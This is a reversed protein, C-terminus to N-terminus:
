NSLDLQLSAKKGEELSVTKKDLKVIRNNEIRVAAADYTGASLSNMHFAGNKFVSSSRIFGETTFPAQFTKGEKWPCTGSKFLYVWAGSTMAGAPLTVTGKLTATGTDYLFDVRTEADNAVEVVKRIQVERTYSVVYRGPPVKDVRFAGDEVQAYAQTNAEGDAQEREVTIHGSKVPEGNELVQGLLVGTGTTFFLDQQLSDGAALDLTVSNHFPSRSERGGLGCSLHIEGAPLHSIRYLGNMDTEMSRSMGSGSVFVRVDPAPVGNEYVYGYVEGSNAGGVELNVTTVGEGVEVERNINFNEDNNFFFVYASLRYKGPHLGTMRYSGDEKSETTCSKTSSGSAEASGYSRSKISIYVGGKPEGHVIVKGELTCGEEFSLNKFAKEGEKVEVKAEVEAREFGDGEQRAKITHRGPALNKLEYFGEKGSVTRSRNYEEDTSEVTVGAAGKGTVYVYGAVSGGRDLFIELGGAIGGPPVAIEKKRAVCYEPHTVTVDYSGPELNTVSFSGDESTRAKPPAFSLFFSSSRRDKSVRIESGAVPQLTAGDRVVGSLSGRGAGSLTIVVGEVTRGPEVLIPDSKVELDNEGKVTVVVEGPDVKKLDFVGDRFRTVDPSFFGTFFTDQRGARDARATFKQVPKGSPDKVRGKIRGFREIIIENNRTDVEYLQSAGKRRGVSSFADLRVKGEMLGDVSFTGDEKSTLTKSLRNEQDGQSIRIEVHALPKGQDDKIRGALFHSGARKLTFELPEDTTELQFRKSFRLFGEARISVYQRGPSVDHVLFGGKEDTIGKSDNSFNLFAGEIGTGSPDVVRGTLTLSPSLVVDLRLSEEEPDVNLSEEKRCWGRRDVICRYLGADLGRVEYSGDGIKEPVPGTTPLGPAFMFRNSKDSPYLSIMANTIAAGSETRINILARAGKELQFDLGGRTEGSEVVIVEGQNWKRTAYDGARQVALNYDGAPLSNLSYRGEGDTRTNNDSFRSSPLFGFLGAIERKATVWVSALPEGSKKDTVRGSLSGNPELDFDIGELTEGEELNISLQPPASYGKVAITLNYREKALPGLIYSGDFGTIADVPFDRNYSWSSATVSVGQRPEGDLRVSGHISGGRTLTMEVDESGTVVGSKTCVAWGPAVAFLTHMDELLHKIEFRGENDTKVQFAPLSRPMVRAGAIPAGDPDVVRGAITGASGLVIEYDRPNGRPHSNRSAAFAEVSGAFGELAATLSYNGAPLHDFAFFGRGDSQTNFSAYAEPKLVGDLSRIRVAQVRAGAASTGDERVVFGTLSELPSSAEEERAEKSKTVREIERARRGEPDKSPSARDDLPAGELGQPRPTTEDESDLPKGEQTVLLVLAGAVVVIGFLIVAPLIPHIRGRHAPHPLRFTNM